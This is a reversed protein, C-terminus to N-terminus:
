IEASAITKFTEADVSEKSVNINQRVYSMVKDSYVRNFMNQVNGKQEKDTLYNTAVKEIIGEMQDDLGGSGVMNGFQSRFMEKTKEMLESYDVKIDANEAIRNKILTWRLDKAFKAYDNEIDEITFKGAEQSDLLWKKLFDDPLEIAINATLGKVIDDDLLFEAERKYNEQLTEVLKAKFEEETSVTEPGFVKDFFEQNMEASATRSINEIKFTYDGMMAAAEEETKSTALKLSKAEAFLTQIDFSVVADKAQGVFLAQATESLQKTPIGTSLTYEGQVLDGFLMDGIEVTEPSSEQGFRVILDAITEDVEKDTALIEYSKIAPINTLDVDFESALGVEYEFSMDGANDWNVDNAKELNPMPDGVVPLKNERIYDTITKSLLNNIEDILISKGYLKHILGAPVKGPRFGKLNAKKATEKVQKDVSAKYDTTAIDITIIGHTNTDKTLVVNM